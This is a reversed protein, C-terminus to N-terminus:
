NESPILLSELFKIEEQDDEDDKPIYMSEGVRNNMFCVFNFAALTYDFNRFPVQDLTKGHYEAFYDFQALRKDVVYSHKITNNLVRLEDIAQYSIAKSLDIGLDLYCKEIDPWKYSSQRQPSFLNLIRNSIQEIIAWLNIVLSESALSKVCHLQVKENFNQFAMRAEAIHRPDNGLSDFMSGFHKNFQDFIPEIVKSSESHTYMAFKHFMVIDNIRQLAQLRLNFRDKSHEGEPFRFMERLLPNLSKDTQSQLEIESLTMPPKM